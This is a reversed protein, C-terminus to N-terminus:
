RFVLSTHVNSGAAHLFLWSSRGEYGRSSSSATDINGNYTAQQLHHKNTLSTLFLMITENRECIRWHGYVASEAIQQLSVWLQQSGLVYGVPKNDKSTQIDRYMCLYVCVCVCACVCVCVCVCLAKFTGRFVTNNRM